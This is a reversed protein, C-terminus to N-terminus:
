LPSETYCRIDDTYVHQNKPSYWGGGFYSVHWWQKIDLEPTTRFAWDDRYYCRTPDSGNLPDTWVELVGNSRDPDNMKCHLTLEYWQGRELLGADGGDHDCPETSGYEGSMEAHYVYHSLLIQNSKTTRTGGYEKPDQFKMRASWGDSGDCPGDGGGACSPDGMWGPLKGGEAWEKGFDADYPDFDADFKLYYQVWAEDRGIDKRIDFGMREDKMYYFALSHSGSYVNAPREEASFYDLGHDVHYNVWDWGRANLESRLQGTDRDDYDKAAEPCPDNCDMRWLLNAPEDPESSEAALTVVSGEVKTRLEDLDERYWVTGIAPTSPDSSMTPAVAQSRPPSPAVRWQTGDGIFRHGTDTALFKAGQKPTYEKLASELDRVEIDTDMKEFNENLPVHWDATGRAPTDYGHNSVM